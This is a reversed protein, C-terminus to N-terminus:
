ATRSSKIDPLVSSLFHTFQGFHPNKTSFLPLRWPFTQVNEPGVLIPIAPIAFAAVVKKVSESDEGPRNLYGVRRAIPRLGIRTSVEVLSLLLRRGENVAHWEPYTKNLVAERIPATV